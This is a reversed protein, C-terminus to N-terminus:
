FFALFTPAFFAKALFILLVPYHSPFIGRCKGAYSPIIPPADKEGASILLSFHMATRWLYLSIQRRCSLFSPSLFSFFLPVLISATCFCFIGDLRKGANGSNRSQTSCKNDRIYYHLQVSHAVIFSLTCGNRM